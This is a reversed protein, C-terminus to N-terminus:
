LAIDEPESWLTCPLLSSPSVGACEPPPDPIVLQRSLPDTVRAAPTLSWVLDILACDCLAGRERLRDVLGESGVARSAGYHESWAFTGVCDLDSLMRHLFCALCEGARPSAGHTPDLPSRTLINIVNSM